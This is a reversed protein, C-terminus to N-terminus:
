AFDGGQRTAGPRNCFVFTSSTSVGARSEGVAEVNASVGFSAPALRPMLMARDPWSKELMALMNTM